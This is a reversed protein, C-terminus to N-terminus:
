QKIMYAESKKSKEPWPVDGQDRNRIRVFEQYKKTNGDLCEEAQNKMVALKLPM